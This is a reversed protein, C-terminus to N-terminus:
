IVVKLHGPPLSSWGSLIGPYFIIRQVLLGVPLRSPLFIHDDFSYYGRAFKGNSNYKYIINRFGAGYSAGFVTDHVFVPKTLFGEPKNGDKSVKRPRSFLRMFKVTCQFSATFIFLYENKGAESLDDVSIQSRVHTSSSHDGGNFGTPTVPETPTCIALPQQLHSEPSNAGGNTIRQPTIRNQLFTDLCPGGHPVTNNYLVQSLVDKSNRDSLDQITGNRLVPRTPPSVPQIHTSLPQRYDEVMLSSPRQNNNDYTINLKTDSTSSASSAAREESILDSPMKGKLCSIYRQCFNDCLEHVKFVFFFFVVWIICKM